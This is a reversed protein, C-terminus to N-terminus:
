IDTDDNDLWEKMEYIGLCRPCKIGSMCFTIEQESIKKGCSPCILNDKEYEFSRKNKVIEVTKM